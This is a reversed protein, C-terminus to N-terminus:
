AEVKIFGRMRASRARPNAKIEAQSPRIVKKNLAMFDARTKFFEKIVKDEGGQFSVLVIRGYQSLVKVAGSLALKLSEMEANTEIRLAQFVKTAPDIKYYHRKPYQAKIIERLQRTNVIREKQRYEVIAQAIKNARPEEGYGMFIRALEEQSYENVIDETRKQNNEGKGFSMDLPREGQFSFGRSIDALQYSSLGLDFVIGAIAEKALHVKAYKAVESFNGAQLIVNKIKKEKIKMEAKELAVPDLDLALVKGTPAVLDAMALTYGAGGLTCDIYNRGPKVNLLQLAEKKLVPIHQYQM